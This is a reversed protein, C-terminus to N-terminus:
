RLIYVFKISYLDCMLLDDTGVPRLVIYSAGVDMLTGIRDSLAGNAGILFEVRMDRGIYNRLYGPSFYPNQVWEPTGISAPVLPMGAEAGEDALVGSMSSPACGCGCGGYTGPIDEAGNEWTQPEMVSKGSVMNMSPPVFDNVPQERMMKADKGASRGPVAQQAMSKGSITEMRPAVFRNEAAPAAKASMNEMRTKGPAGSSNNDRMRDTM